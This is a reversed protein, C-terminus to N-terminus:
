DFLMAVKNEYESDATGNGLANSTPKTDQIEQGSNLVAIFTFRDAWAAGPLVLGGVCAIAQILGYLNRPHLV